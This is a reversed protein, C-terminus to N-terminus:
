TLIVLERLTLHLLPPAAEAAAWSMSCFLGAGQSHGREDGEGEELVALPNDCEELIRTGLCVSGAGTEVSHEAWLVQGAGEWLRGGGDEEARGGPDSVHPRPSPSSLHWASPAAGDLGAGADCHRTEESEHRAKHWCFESKPPRFIRSSDIQHSM